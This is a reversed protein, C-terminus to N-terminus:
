YRYRWKIDVGQATVGARSEVSIHPTLEIEVVVRTLDARAGQEVRFYVGDALYRGIGVVTEGDETARIDLDEIGVGRRLRETLGVGRGTLTRVALALRVAQLASIQSLDRGFMLRALVEDEPYPPESRITMVPDDVPGSIRLWTTMAATENVATVDITPRAPEGEVMRVVGEELEFRKTLFDLRGRVIRVQGGVVPEAIPGSVRLDGSWESDLGRGRVFCRNPITVNVDLMVDGLVGWAAPQDSARPEHGEDPDDMVLIGEMGRPRPEPIRLEAPALALEGDVRSRGPSLTLELAGDLTGTAADMRILEMAHLTVSVRGELGDDWALRGDGRITGERGDTAEVNRVILADEEFACEIQVARVTTGTVANDYEGDYLGAKGRVTLAAVPGTVRLDGELRGALRQSGPLFLPSFSMVDARLGAAADLDGTIVAQFPQFSLTLPLSLEGDIRDGERNAAKFTARLEDTEYEVVAQGDFRATDAGLDARTTMDRFEGHVRISPEHLTGGLQVELDATGSPQIRATADMQIRDLQLSEATVRGEVANGTRRAELRLVGGAVDAEPWNISTSADTGHVTLPQTWDLPIGGYEAQGRDLSLAWQREGIHLSGEAEVAYRLPGTGYADLHLSYGDRDGHVRAEIGDIRAAGAVAEEASLELTAERRGLPSIVDIRGAAAGIRAAEVRLNASSFNLTLDPDELAGRLGAVVDLRGDLHIPLVAELWQLRAASAEFRSDLTREALNLKAAGSGETDPARVQLNSVTVSQHDWRCDASLEATIDGRAAELRLAAEPAEPWGRMTATVNLTDLVLPGLTPSSLAGDLNLTLDDLPGAINGTAELAGTVRASELAPVADLAPLKLGVRADVHRGAFRYTGAATATLGDGTLTVDRLTLPADPHAELTAELSPRPGLLADIDHPLGQIERATARLVSTLQRDRWHGHMDAQVALGAQVNDTKLYPLRQVNPVDAELTIDFAGATTATGTMSLRQDPTEANAKEVTVRGPAEPDLALAFELAVPDASVDRGHAVLKEFRAEGRVASGSWPPQGDTETRPAGEAHLRVAGVDVAGARVNEATLELEGRPAAWRGVARIDARASGALPLQLPRLARLDAIEASATLDMTEERLNVHGTSNLTGAPITLSASEWDLEGTATAYTASVGVHVPDLVVALDHDLRPVLGAAAVTAQVSARINRDVFGVGLAAEIRVADGERMVFQGTWDDLSGRGALELHLPADVQLKVARQLLGDDPPIAAQLKLELYRGRMDLALQAHGGGPRDTRRVTFNGRLASPSPSALSGHLSLALRQGVVPEALEIRPFSMHRVRVRPLAPLELTPTGTAEPRADPLRDVQIKRAGIRRIEPVGSFLSLPSWSLTLDHAELLPGQDDAVRVEALAMNFPILGTLGHCEVVYGARGAFEGLAHALRTKAWPTQALAFLVAVLLGACLMAAIPVTAIQKLLYKM